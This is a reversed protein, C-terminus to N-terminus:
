VKFSQVYEMAARETEAVCELSINDSRPLKSLCDGVIEFIDYLRLEGNLFRKVAYENVANVFCPANNNNNESIVAAKKMTTLPTFTDYDPKAFTLAGIDTLSLKKWSSVPRAGTLAYQIPLRMDPAGLQAIVAGDAYEVASHLISERHIVVEIQDPSVGFLHMAEVFELGKNMLTASDLTVKAGMSWNNNKIDITSVNGLSKLYVTDQGYFMGGSCTLIIKSLESPNNGQLSQYIASHESDVPIIKVGKEASKRMVLAGAAVLTEK